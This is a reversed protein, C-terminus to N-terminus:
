GARLGIPIAFPHNRDVGSILISALSHQLGYNPAERHLNLCAHPLPPSTDAPAPYVRSLMLDQNYM